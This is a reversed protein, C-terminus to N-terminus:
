RYKASKSLGDINKFFRNNGSKMKCNVVVWILVCFFYFTNRYIRDSIRKKTAIKENVPLIKRNTTQNINVTNEFFSVM